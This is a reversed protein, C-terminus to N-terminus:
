TFVLFEGLTVTLQQLYNNKKSIDNLSYLLRLLQKLNFLFLTKPVVYYLMRVKKAVIVMPVNQVSVATVLPVM